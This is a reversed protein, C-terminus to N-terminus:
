KKFRRGTYGQAKGLKTDVKMTFVFERVDGVFYAKWVEANDYLVRRQIRKGPQTPTGFEIAAPVFMPETDGRRSTPYHGYKAKYLEWYKNRDIDLSVGVVGKKRKTARVKTSRMYAGTEYAETKALRRFEQQMRKTCKRLAGRIIKAKLKKDLQSLTVDLDRDGTLEIVTGLPVEAM